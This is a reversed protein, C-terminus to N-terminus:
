VNLQLDFTEPLTGEERKVEGGGKSAGWGWEGCGKM